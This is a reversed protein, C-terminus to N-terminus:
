RAIWLLSGVMSQFSNTNPVNKAVRAPLYEQDVEDELNCDDDIPCASRKGLGVWLGKAAFRSDSNICFSGKSEDLQIRLGLFKSVVGLDEISLCAMYAFISNVASTETGTVLMDDVYVGVM